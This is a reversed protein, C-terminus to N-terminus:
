RVVDTATASAIPTNAHVGRPSSAAATPTESGSAPRASNSHVVGFGLASERTTNTLEDV